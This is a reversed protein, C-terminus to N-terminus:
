GGGAGDVALKLSAAEQEAERLKVIMGACSSCGAAGGGAAAAHKEEAVRKQLDEAFGRVQSFCHAATLSCHNIQPLSRPLHSHAALSLLQADTSIQM